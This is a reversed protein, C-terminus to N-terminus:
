NEQRSDVDASSEHTHLDVGLVEEELAELSGGPEAAFRAMDKSFTRKALLFLICALLSAVPMVSMATNLDTADAIAGTVFPGPAMGLLSIALAVTALVTAHIRPDNVATAVASSPGSHAGSFFMGLAILSFQLTGPTQLFALLLLSMTAAAYAATILLKRGPARRSLRDVIAGGLTMGIASILVLMGAKAGAEAVPMEYYRYLYSPMWALVAGVTFMQLGCAFYIYVATPASFVQPMIERLPIRPEVTQSGAAPAAGAAERVLLRFAVALPLAVGGTVFFAARWGYHSAVVGGLVVGIVSGFLGAALFAGMVTSHLRPPFIGLLVAGGASGFGAQAIGLLIRLVLLFVFGTALGAGVTALGWALAMLTTALVKGYRDVLISVPLTFVGVTLAVVSVLSGLQTDSFDWVQKLFPFLVTVVQRSMYNSLMLGFVLAFVLWAYASIRSSAAAPATGDATTTV